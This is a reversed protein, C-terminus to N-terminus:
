FVTYKQFLAMTTLKSEFLAQLSLIIQRATYPLTGAFCDGFVHLIRNIVGSSQRIMCIMSINCLKLQNETMLMCKLTIISKIAQITNTYIYIKDENRLEYFSSLFGLSHRLCINSSSCAGGRRKKLWQTRKSNVCKHNLLIILSFCTHNRSM